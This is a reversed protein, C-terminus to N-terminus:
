KSSSVIDTNLASYIIQSQFRIQLFAVYSDHVTEVVKDKSCIKVM